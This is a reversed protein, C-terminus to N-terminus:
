VQCSSGLMRKKSAAVCVIKCDWCELAVDESRMALSFEFNVMAAM